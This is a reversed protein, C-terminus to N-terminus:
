TAGPCNMVSLDPPPAKSKPLHSPLADSYDATRHMTSALDASSLQRYFAMQEKTQKLQWSTSSRSPLQFQLQLGGLLLLGAPLSGWMARRGQWTSSWSAAATCCRYESHWLHAPVYMSASLADPPETLHWRLTPHRCPPIEQLGHCAFFTSSRYKDKQTNAPQVLLQQNEAQLWHAAGRARHRSGGQLHLSSGSKCSNWMPIPFWPLHHILLWLHQPYKLTITIVSHPTDVICLTSEAAPPHQSTQEELGSIQEM